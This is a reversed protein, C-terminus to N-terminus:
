LMAIYSYSYDVYCCLGNGDDGQNIAKITFVHYTEVDSILDLKEPLKLGLLLLNELGLSINNITSGCLVHYEWVLIESSSPVYNEGDPKDKIATFTIDLTDTNNIRNNRIIPYNLFLENPDNGNFIPVSVCNTIANVTHEHKIPTFKEPKDSIGSWLVADAQTARDATKAILVKGDNDPDYVSKQMDGIGSGDEGIYKVWKSNSFDALTPNIIEHDVHIEARFKLSSSPTVSFNSGSTDTAYAVYCYTSKGNDGKPGNILGISDSWAGSESGRLRLRMLKDTVKQSSHWEIGDKSFECEMGSAILARVQNSTLYDPEIETPVGLSSIRNRITFNEIQVIFVEKGDSDFGVLEGHLGNKSKETGLWNALEETNMNPIPISVETYTINEEDITENIEAVTINSNDGVIKYSTAENFDNDMAWSWAVINSFFDIPYADWTDRNAFLRMKLCAEVGRVLTPADANKANAYDRVVGLTENAAVYFITNQM